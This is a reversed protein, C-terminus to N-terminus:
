IKTLSGDAIEYRKYSDITQEDQDILVTKAYDLFDFGDIGENVVCARFYAARFKHYTREDEPFIDFQKCHLNLTKSFRRNVREPDENSDFRKDKKDLYDLGVIVLDAKLLTPIKYEVAKLNVARDDIKVKREKGKLQGKFGITYDNIKSFQASLHVEAMRRGSSLAVACSVDMWNPSGGEVVEILINQCYRLSNSLDITVRNGAQRRVDVRQRYDINQKEKYSAFQFSLANGFHTIITCVPHYLAEDNLQTRAAAKLGKKIATIQRLCTSYTREEEPATDPYYVKLNKAEVSALKEWGPLDNVGKKRQNLKYPALAEFAPLVRAIVREVYLNRLESKASLQRSM